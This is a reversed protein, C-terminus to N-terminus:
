QKWHFLLHGTFLLAYPIMLGIVTSILDFEEPMVLAIATAGVGSAFRLGMGLSKARKGEDISRDFREMRRVLIWFNYMGFLSGLILGAFITRYDLFFWGLVFLALLFFFSKKQQKFIEQMSQM